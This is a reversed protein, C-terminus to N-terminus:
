GEEGFGEKVLDVLAQLAEEAQCGTAKIDLTDGLRAGLMMLDLMSRGPAKAQSVMVQIEVDFQRVLSTFKGAARAHLGKGNVLTVRAQACPREAQPSDKLM